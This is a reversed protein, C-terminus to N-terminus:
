APKTKKTKPQGELREGILRLRLAVCIKEAATLTLTRKGRMFRSLQPNSVGCAKSLANLSQGSDRIAKRLQRILGYAETKRKGM